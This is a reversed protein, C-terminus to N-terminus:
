NALATGSTTRARRRRAPPAGNSAIPSSGPFTEDGTPEVHPTANMAQRLRSLELYMAKRARNQSGLPKHAELSHWPNYSLVDAFALQADSEFHQRPLRLRAVTVYPSEGEPWKVTADEIPMRHSDTQVQVRFDFSWDGEALTRVMAERLYNPSPRAPIPTLAASTPVISYQVAQGEGLLFPVNSYYRTELPSHHVRSYLSQMVGALLHTDLPNIFYFLNTRARVYRQLKANERTNPTVFSAPTVLILDQTFREDPMLKPGDVGMLKIGCSCQGYDDLDAPAYPGPGSFRVWARYTSPKALVGQRLHEPLDPLVEFEGRLVGHTKTNGFRQAAGPLWTERMFKAIEDIIARESAEDDPALLEEALALHEDRRQANLLAQAAAFIVPLAFRDFHDRWLFETRRELRWGWVSLESIPQLAFQNLLGSGIM